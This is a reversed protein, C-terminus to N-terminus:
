REVAALYWPAPGQCDQIALQDVMVNVKPQCGGAMFFQGELFVEM